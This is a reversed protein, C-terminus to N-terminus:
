THREEQQNFAQAKDMVSRCFDELEKFEKEASELSNCEKTAVIVYADIENVYFGKNILQAELDDIAKSSSIDSPDLSLSLEYDTYGFNDFTRRIKIDALM